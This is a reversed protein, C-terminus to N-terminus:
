MDGKTMTRTRCVGTPVCDGIAVVERRELDFPISFSGPSVRKKNMM